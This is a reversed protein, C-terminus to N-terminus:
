PNHVAAQHSNFNPARRLRCAFFCASSLDGMPHHLQLLHPAVDETQSSPLPYAFDPFRSVKDFVLLFKKNGALFKTGVSVQDIEIREMSSHRTRPAHRDAPQQFTEEHPMSWADRVGEHGADDHALFM